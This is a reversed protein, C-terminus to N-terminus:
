GFASRVAVGLVGPGTNGAIVSSIPSIDMEAQPFRQQLTEKLENAQVLNDAYMLLIHEPPPISDLLELVRQLAKGITRPREGVQLKGDVLTIIPKVQLLNGILAKPTSLRGSRRLYELTNLIMFLRTVQSAQKTARLVNDLDAGTGAVGAARAAVLALAGAGQNSDFVTVTEAGLAEAAVRANSYVATLKASATVMLIQKYGLDLVARYTSLFDTPNPASTAPNTTTTKLDAYFTSPLQDERDQYTTGNWLVRLPVIGINWREALCQSIGATSDVLVKVPQM